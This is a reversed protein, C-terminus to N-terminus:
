LYRETVHEFWKQIRFFITESRSMELADIRVSPLSADGSIEPMKGGVEVDPASVSM